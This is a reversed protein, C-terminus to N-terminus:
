SSTNRLQQAATFASRIAAVIGIISCFVSAATIMYMVMIQYRVAQTPDNGALIQGTMMGPLSVVGVVLMSNVSPVIATRLADRRIQHIAQSATAGLALATEIENRRQRLAGAFHSLALTAANMANGIIMGALPLLYRPDYWPHIRLVAITIYLLVALSGGVIALSVIWTKGWMSEVIRGRATHAAVGLMIVLALAVWYWAGSTFIFGLVYGVLTLQVFSRVAGWLMDRHLRLQLGWSLLMSMFVLLGALSLDWYSLPITEM